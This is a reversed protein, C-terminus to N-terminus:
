IHILSLFYTEPAKGSTLMYVADWEPVTVGTNFRGCAITITKDNLAIARKVKALSKINNGTVNLVKCNHGETKNLLNTLATAEKVGPVVWYSHDPAYTRIAAKNKKVGRGLLHNDLFLKVTAEDNFTVGDDSALMKTM